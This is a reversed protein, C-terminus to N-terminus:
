KSERSKRVWLPDKTHKWIVVVVVASQTKLSLFPTQWKGIRQLHLRGSDVRSTRQSPRHLPMTQAQGASTPSQHRQTRPTARRCLGVGSTSRQTEFSTAEWPRVSGTSLSRRRRRRWGSPTSTAAAQSVGRRLPTDPPSEATARAGVSEQAGGSRLWGSTEGFWSSVFSFFSFIFLYFSLSFLILNQNSISNWGDTWYPRRCKWTMLVRHTPPPPPLLLCLEDVDMGGHRHPM